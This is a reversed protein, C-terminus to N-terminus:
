APAPIQGFKTNMEDELEKIQNNYYVIKQEEALIELAININRTYEPLGSSRRDRSSVSHLSDIRKRKLEDESCVLLWLLDKKMENRAREIKVLAIERLAEKKKIERKYTKPSASFFKKVTGILGM